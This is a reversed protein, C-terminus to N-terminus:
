KFYLEPSGNTLSAQPPLNLPISPAWTKWKDEPTDNLVFTTGNTAKEVAGPPTAFEIGGSIITAPSEANIQLGKFLGVHLSLGGANWFRSASSVLPTYEPRITARLVVQRADSALQYSVVEGVQVGRYFVPTQQQLSGLDPVVLNIDLSKPPEPLPEKEAGTFTNTHPGTGPQVAIYEGSIITRLGSVSGVSLEPRVIWFISGDCALNKASGALEATVKVHQNDPTLEVGTVAGVNAGRFKVLTDKEEVGDANQFYITIRPGTEVIDRWAFWACLCAAGFPVLWLLLSLRGKRIRAAPLHGPALGHGSHKHETTTM